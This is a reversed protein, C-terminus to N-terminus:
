KKFNNISEKRYDALARKTKKHFLEAGEKCTPNSSFSRWQERLENEYKKEREAILFMDYETSAELFEEWQMALEFCENDEFEEWDECGITAEKGVIENEDTVVQNKTSDANTM